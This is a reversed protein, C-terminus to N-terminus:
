QSFFVQFIILGFVLRVRPVYLYGRRRGRACLRAEDERARADELSAELEQADHIRNRLNLVRVGSSHGRGGRRASERSQEASQALFLGARLNCM